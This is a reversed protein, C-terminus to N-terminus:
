PLSLRAYQNLTRVVKTDRQTVENKPSNHDEVVMFEKMLGFVM